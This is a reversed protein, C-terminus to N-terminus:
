FFHKPKFSKIFDRKFKCSKYEYLSTNEVGGSDEM